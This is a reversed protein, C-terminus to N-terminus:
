ERYSKRSNITEIEDDLPSQDRTKVIATIM